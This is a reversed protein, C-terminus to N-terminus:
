CCFGFSHNKLYDHISTLTPSYLLSLASSNISEFQPTPSSEQSGRTSCPSWVLWDQLFDVRFIWQFSQHQLQLELVKAVQHFSSIWQFSGSVSFSLFCSSFPAVSSSISPRVLEISTLKLLNRSITFSLSAQCAATWLAAFLWVLSLLQVVIGNMLAGGECGFWRRFAEGAIM